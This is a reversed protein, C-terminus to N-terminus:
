LLTDKRRGVLSLLSFKAIFLAQEFSKGIHTVCRHFNMLLWLLKATIM